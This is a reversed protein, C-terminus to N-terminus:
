FTTGGGSILGSVTKGITTMLASFDMKKYDDEPNEL